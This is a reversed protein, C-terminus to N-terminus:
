RGHARLFDADNVVNIGNKILLAATVGDGPILHSAFSGDYIQGCGCSPSRSQFIAEKIGASAAMKLTEEAGKIFASTVDKSNEDIVRAKGELVNSGTGSIIECAPRPTCMGGLQEPCVPLLENRCLMESFISHINNKGNYKCNVGCLCASILKM